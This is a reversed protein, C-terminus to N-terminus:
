SISASSTTGVSASTGCSHSRSRTWRAASSFGVAVVFVARRGAVREVVAMAMPYGPSFVPVIKSANPTLYHVRYGLPTLSAAANPWTMTKAFAQEVIPAGKAWLDAQSAYGYADSGGAVASNRVVGIAAVGISVIAAGAFAFRRAGAIVM